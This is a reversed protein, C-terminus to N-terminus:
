ISAELLKIEEPTLNFLEYVKANSQRAMLYSCGTKIGKALSTTNPYLQFLALIKKISNSPKLTKPPLDDFSCFLIYPLIPDWKQSIPPHV